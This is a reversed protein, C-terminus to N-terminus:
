MSSREGEGMDVTGSVSGDGGVDIGEADDIGRPGSHLKRLDFYSTSGSYRRGTTWWAGHSVGAMFFYAGRRDGAVVGDM